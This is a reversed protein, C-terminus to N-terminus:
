CLRVEILPNHRCTIGQLSNQTREFVELIASELRLYANYSKSCVGQLFIM